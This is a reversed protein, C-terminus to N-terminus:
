LLCGEGSDICKVRLLEAFKSLHKREEEIINKFAKQAQADRTTKLCGGYFVISRREMHMAEEFAAHRHEVSPDFIHANMYNVVDDEEFGDQRAEEERALLGRFTALHRAEETILFDIERKAGPDKTKASLDKYFAIGDEEMKMAIKYAQAPNFDSIVINGDKAVHVRM